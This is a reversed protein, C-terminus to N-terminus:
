ARGRECQGGVRARRDEDGWGEGGSRRSGVWGARAKGVRLPAALQELSPGPGADGAGSSLALAGFWEGGQGDGEESDGDDEKFNPAYVTEGTEGTCVERGSRANQIVPSCIFFTNVCPPPRQRSVKRRSHLRTLISAHAPPANRTEAAGPFRAHVGWVEPRKAETAM